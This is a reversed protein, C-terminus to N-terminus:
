YFCENVASVRGAILEIQARGLGREPEYGPDMVQPIALYLAECQALALAADAPVLSLARIVNPMPAEGWISRGAEGGSPGAPLTPVWAEEAIATAPRERSPEGEGPQPYAHPPIGIARCFVDVAVTQVVVGALEVYESDTLVSASAKYWAEDLSEPRGGVQRAIDVAADPLTPEVPDDVRPALGRLARARRAERAIGIRQASTWWTGPEGLASWIRRHVDEVESRVRIPANEYM